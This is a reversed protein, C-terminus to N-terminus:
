GNLAPPRATVSNRALAKARAPSLVAGDARDIGAKKHCSMATASAKQITSAPRFLGRQSQIGYATIAAHTTIFMGTMAMRPAGRVGVITRAAPPAIPLEMPDASVRVTSSCIHATVATATAAGRIRLRRGGETLRNATGAASIVVTAPTM